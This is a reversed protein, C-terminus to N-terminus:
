KFSFERIKGGGEQVFVRFRLNLQQRNQRMIGVTQYDCRWLNRRKGDECLMERCANQEDLESTCIKNTYADNNIPEIYWTYHRQREEAESAEASKGAPPFMKKFAKPPTISLGKTPNPTRREQQKSSM